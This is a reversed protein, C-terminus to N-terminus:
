IKNNKREYRKSNIYARIHSPHRRAFSILDAEGRERLLVFLQHYNTVNMKEIFREVRKYLNNENLLHIQTKLTESM